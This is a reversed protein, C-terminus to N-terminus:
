PEGRGPFEKWIVKAFARASALAAIHEPGSMLDRVHWTRAAGKQARITVVSTEAAVLNAVTFSSLPLDLGLGTAKAVAEKRTWCSLFAGVTRDSGLLLKREAEDFFERVIETWRPIERITEIDVGLEGGASLALLGLTGSHAGNFFLDSRDILRPKGQASPGIAVRAPAVGLAHGLIQRLAMRRALFRRRLLPTAFGEARHLEDRDLVDTTRALDVEDLAIRWVEIADDPDRAQM